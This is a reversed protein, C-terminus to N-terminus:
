SAEWNCNNGAVSSHSTGPIALIWLIGNAEKNVDNASLFASVEKSQGWEQIREHFSLYLIFKLDSYRWAGLQKWVGNPKSSLPVNCVMHLYLSRFTTKYIVTGLYLLVTRNFAIDRGFQVLGHCKLCMRQHPDYFFGYQTPLKSLSKTTFM